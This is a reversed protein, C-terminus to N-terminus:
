MQILLAEGSGVHRLARLAMNNTGYMTLSLLHLFYEPNTSKIWELDKVEAPTMLSGNGTFAIQFQQIFRSVTIATGYCLESQEQAAIIMRAIDTARDMRM